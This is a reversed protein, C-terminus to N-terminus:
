PGFLRGKGSSEWPFCENFPDAKRVSLYTEWVLEQRVPLLWGILPMPKRSVLHECVKSSKKPLWLKGKENQRNIAKPGVLVHRKTRLKWQSPLCRSHLSVIVLVKAM